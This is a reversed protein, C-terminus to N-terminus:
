DILLDILGSIGGKRTKFSIVPHSDQEYKVPALFM